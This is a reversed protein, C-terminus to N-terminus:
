SSRRENCFLGAFTNFEFNAFLWGVHLKYSPAWVTFSCKCKVGGLNPDGLPPHTAAFTSLEKLRILM